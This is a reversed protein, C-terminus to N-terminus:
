LKMLKYVKVSEIRLELRCYLTKYFHIRNKESRGGLERGRGRKKLREENLRACEILALVSAPAGDPQCVAQVAAVM